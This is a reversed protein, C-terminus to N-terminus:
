VINEGGRRVRDLKNKLVMAIGYLNVIFKLFIIVLFYFGSVNYM